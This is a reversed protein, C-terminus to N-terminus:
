LELCLCNAVNSSRPTFIQHAILNGKLAQLSHLCGRQQDWMQVAM